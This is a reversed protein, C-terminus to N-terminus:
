GLYVLLQNSAPYILTQNLQQWDEQQALVAERIARDPQYTPIFLQPTEEWQENVPVRSIIELQEAQGPASMSFLPPQTVDEDRKKAMKQERRPFIRVTGQWQRM